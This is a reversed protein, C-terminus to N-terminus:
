PLQNIQKNCSEIGDRILEELSERSPQELQSCNELTKRFESITFELDERNNSSEEGDYTKTYQNFHKIYNIIQLLVIAEQSDRSIEVVRKGLAMLFSWSKDEENQDPGSSFVCSFPRGAAVCSDGFGQSPYLHEGYDMLLATWTLGGWTSVNEYFRPFGMKVAKTLLEGCFRCKKAEDQITEACYPCKM